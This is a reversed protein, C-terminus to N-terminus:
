NKSHQTKLWRKWEGSVNLMLSKWHLENAWDHRVRQLGMFQLMGPRGTWWWSRSNVWVLTWGAMEDEKMGKEEQGWDRGADSDKGILWSKVHPPWLIPTEAPMPWDSGMIRSPIHQSQAETKCTATSNPFASSIVQAMVEPFLDEAVCCQTPILFLSLRGEVGLTFM